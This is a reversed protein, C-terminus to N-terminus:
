LNGGNSDGTEKQIAIAIKRYFGITLSYTSYRYAPLWTVIPLKKKMNGVTCTNNCCRRCRENMTTACCLASSLCVGCSRRLCPERTGDDPGTGDQLQSSIGSNVLTVIEGPENTAQKSAREYVALTAM